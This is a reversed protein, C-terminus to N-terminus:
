AARPLPSPSGFADGQGLRVAEQGCQFGFALWPAVIKLEQGSFILSTATLFGFIIMKLTGAEFSSSGGWGGGLFFFSLRTEEEGSKRGLKLYPRQAGSSTTLLQLFASLPMRRKRTKGSAEEIGFSVWVERSDESNAGIREPKKPPLPGSNLEEEFPFSVFPFCRRLMKTKLSVSGLPALFCTLSPIVCTEAM